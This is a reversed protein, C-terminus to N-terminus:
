AIIKSIDWELDLALRFLREWYKLKIPVKPIGVAKKSPQPSSIIDERIDRATELIMM